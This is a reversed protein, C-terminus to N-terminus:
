SPLYLARPSTIVKALAPLKPKVLDPVAPPGDKKAKADVGPYFLCEAFCPEYGSQKNDSDELHKCLQGPM